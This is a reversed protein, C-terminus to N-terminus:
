PLGAGPGVPPGVADGPSLHLRDELRRRRVLHVVVLASVVAAYVCWLSVFADRYLWAVVALGVLNAVGFVVISRYGSLVAPGVVAVVYLVAWVVGHQMGTSYDLAHPRAAVSVDHTALVFTLHASVVAGLLLFPSVRRRRHPPELLLVSLPVLTPLLPLAVALYAFMAVRALGPSVDGDAGAWVVAEVLQHVALVLPLSAFLLERPHRVERLSLAGVPLLAAGAVLDAEVSFCM